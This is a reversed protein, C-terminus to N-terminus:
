CTLRSGTPPPVLWTEPGVKVFFWGRVGTQKRFLRIREIPAGDDLDLKLGLVRIRRGEQEVSGISPCIHRCVDKLIYQLQQAEM